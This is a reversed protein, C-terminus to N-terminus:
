RGGPGRLTGPVVGGRMRGSLVVVVAVASWSVVGRDCTLCVCGPCGRSLGGVAVTVCAEGAPHATEGLFEVVVLVDVALSVGIAVFVDSLPDPAFGM